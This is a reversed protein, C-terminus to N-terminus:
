NFEASAIVMFFGRSPCHTQFKFALRFRSAPHLAAGLARRAAQPALYAALPPIAKANNSPNNAFKVTIPETAGEPITGNLKQIAREAEIRQDFRIFGVGKSLGPVCGDGKNVGPVSLAPTLLTPPALALTFSRKIPVAFIDSLTKKPSKEGAEDQEPWRLAPGLFPSQTVDLM